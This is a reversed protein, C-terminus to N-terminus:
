MHYTSGDNAAANLVIIELFVFSHFIMDGDVPNSHMDGVHSWIINPFQHSVPPAFLNIM